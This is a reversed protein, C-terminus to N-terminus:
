ILINLLSGPRPTRGPSQAEPSAPQAARPAPAVAAQAALAPAQRVPPAPALAQAQVQAQGVAAQFFARHAAARADSPARTQTSPLSQAPLRDVAM